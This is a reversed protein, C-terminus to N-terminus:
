NLNNCIIQRSSYLRKISEKTEVHTTTFWTKSFDIQSTALDVFEIFENTSNCLFSVDEYEIVLEKINM